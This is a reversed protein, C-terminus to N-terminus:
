KRFGKKDNKIINTFQPENKFQPYIFPAMGIGLFFFKWYM